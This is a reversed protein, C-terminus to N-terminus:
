IFITKLYPRLENWTLIFDEEPWNEESTLSIKVGEELLLVECDDITINEFLESKPLEKGSSAYHASLKKQFFARYLKEKEELFMESPPCLEGDSLSFLHTEKQSEDLDVCNFYFSLQIFSTRQVFGYNGVCFAQDEYKSVIEIINENLTSEADENGTFQAVPYTLGNDFARESFKVEQANVLQFVLLLPLLLLKKDM